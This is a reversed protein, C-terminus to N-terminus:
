EYWDMEDCEDESEIGLFSLPQTRSKQLGALEPICDAHDPNTRYFKGTRQDDAMPYINLRQVNSSKVTSAEKRNCFKFGQGSSCTNRWKSPCVNPRVIESNRM